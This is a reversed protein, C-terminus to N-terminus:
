CSRRVLPEHRSRHQRSAAPSGATAM